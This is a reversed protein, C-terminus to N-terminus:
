WFKILWYRKYTWMVIPIGSWWVLQLSVASKAKFKPKGWLFQPCHNACAGGVDGLCIKFSPEWHLIGRLAREIYKRCTSKRRCRLPFCGGTSNHNFGLEPIRSATLLTIINHGMKKLFSFGTQKKISIEPVNWRFHWCCRLPLIQSNMGSVYSNDTETLAYVMSEWSTSLFSRPARFLTDRVLYPISRNKRTPITIQVITWIELETSRGGLSFVGRTFAEHHQVFSLNVPTEDLFFKKGTLKILSLTEINTLSDLIKKLSPGNLGVESIRVSDSKRVYSILENTPFSKASIHELGKSWINNGREEQKKQLSSLFVSNYKGPKNEEDNFTTLVISQTSELSSLALSLQQTSRGVNRPDWALWYVESTNTPSTGYATIALLHNPFIQRDNVNESLIKKCRTSQQTYHWYRCRQASKNANIKGIGLNTSIPKSTNLSPM